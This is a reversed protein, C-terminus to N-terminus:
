ASVENSMCRADVASFPDVWIDNSAKTIIDKAAQNANKRSAMYAQVIKAEDELETLDSERKSNRIVTVLSVLFGFLKLM